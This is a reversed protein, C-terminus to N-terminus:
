LAESYNRHIGLLQAWDGKRKKLGEIDAILESRVEEDEESRLDDRLQKLENKAATWMEMWHQEHARIAEASLMKESQKAKRAKRFHHSDKPPIPNMRFFREKAEQLRQLETADLREAEYKKYM